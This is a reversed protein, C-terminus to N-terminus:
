STLAENLQIARYTRIDASNDRPFRTAATLHKQEKYVANTGPFSVIIGSNTSATDM